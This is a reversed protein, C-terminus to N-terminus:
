ETQINKIVVFVVVRYLVTKQSCTKWFLRLMLPFHLCSLYSSTKDRAATHGGTNVPCDLAYQSVCLELGSECSMFRQCSDIAARAPFSAMVAEGAFPPLQQQFMVSVNTQNDGKSGEGNEREVFGEEDKPTRESTLPHAFHFSDVPSTFTERFYVFYM